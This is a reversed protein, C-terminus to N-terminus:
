DEEPVQEPPHKMMRVPSLLLWLSSLCTGILAGITITLRLGITQGLVGAMLTGILSASLGFFRISANVRGLLRDPTISQRLSVENISYITYAPDTILQNAALLLIALATAGHALPVSLMGVGTFVLGCIMAPGIGIRQSVRSAVIAGFFSTVGGVAYIMGQIGPAIGLERTVFLLMVTGFIRFSLNETIATAALALLIPNHRILHLGESIERWMGQRKSEPTPEPEPARIFGVFLASVIFSIADILVAVPATLWQVLWGGLGFAGVSAVSESAILKSNGEVLEERRVISPLYSTYAVDFFMTLISTLFAVLYLQAIHLYGLFAAVPISALLLARGIDAGILIPRRRLRDVWVGAVPGILLGPVIDVASLLAMQFPTSKLVLIAAFPLAIRSILSGSVSITEGAWLKLFDPNRWLGNLQPRM